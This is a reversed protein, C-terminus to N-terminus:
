SKSPAALLAEGGASDDEGGESGPDLEARAAGDGDVIAALVEEYLEPALRGKIRGLVDRLEQEVHIRIRPAYRKPETREMLWALARWDQDGHRIVKAERAIRRERVAQELAVVFDRYPGAKQQEGKLRWAFLSARNVGVSAAVDDFTGCVKLRDVIKAQLEKTLLLRPGRKGKAM